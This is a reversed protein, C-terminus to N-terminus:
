LRFQLGYHGRGHPLRRHQRVPAVLLNLIQRDIFSFIYACLLIVVTYWAWATSPYAQESQAPADILHAKEHVSLGAVESYEFSRHKIARM